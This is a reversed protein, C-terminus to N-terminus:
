SQKTKKLTLIIQHNRHITTRQLPKAKQLYKAQFLILLALPTKFASFSTSEMQSVQSSVQRTLHTLSRLQGRKGFMPSTMIVTRVRLAALTDLLTFLEQYTERNFADTPRQLHVIVVDKKRWHPVVALRADLSTKVHFAAFYYALGVSLTVMLRTLLTMEVSLFCLGTWAVWQASLRWRQTHMTADLRPRTQLLLVAGIGWLLPPLLLYGIDAWLM